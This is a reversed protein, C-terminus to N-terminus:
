VAKPRRMRAGTQPDTRVAEWAQLLKPVTSRRAIESPGVWEGETHEWDLRVESRAVRVRFPHITFVRGGERAYLIPGETVEELDDPGLGTEESIERVAQSRPPVGELYGSVAAWRGRFSGVKESRRLILIRGDARELFATVVPVEEVDGIEVVGEGGDLRLEDGVRFLDADIDGIAPPGPGIPRPPARGGSAFIVGAFSEGNADTSEPGDPPAVLICETARLHPPLV